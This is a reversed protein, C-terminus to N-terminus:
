AVWDLWRYWLGVLPLFWPRGDYLPVQPFPLQVFPHERLTGNWMAEAVTQGLYTGLAVGHGAYGLAYYLGDQEGAHPMLDLAFDLTGGWAYEVRIARLAPFVTRMEQQLIRASQSVTRKTEPFFAARGGFILRGEWLRFYHLYHRTDFVMRHHPILSNALDSPLPETAIIYSGIPLIRRRVWPFVEGTYGATAILVAEAELVGRPTHLVFRPGRREIRTVRAQAYLAAGAREAARALGAVFQAPNLGGSVEDVLGGYYQGSGIEESLQVASVMRVPHGFERDLLEAEEYLARAHGPKVAVVLHGHRAFGCAIGEQAVLREVLDIAKLSCTFLDRALSRGYRRLVTPMPLKLGTLVMGGNRSSAGWGITEAELVAVSGGRQALTYAASLGTYGGGVIAVQVKGGLPSDVDGVPMEVTDWWFVRQRIHEDM